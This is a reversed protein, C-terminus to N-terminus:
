QRKGSKQLNVNEKYVSFGVIYFYTPFFFATHTPAKLCKKRLRGEPGRQQYIDLAWVLPHCQGNQRESIFHRRSPVSLLIIRTHNLCDEVSLFALRSPPRRRQPSLQSISKPLRTGERLYSRSLLSSCPRPFLLWHPLWVAPGEVGQPRLCLATPLGAEGQSWSKRVHNSQAGNQNKKLAKTNPQWNPWELSPTEPPLCPLLPESVAMYTKETCWTLAEQTDGMLWSHRDRHVLHTDQTHRTDGM